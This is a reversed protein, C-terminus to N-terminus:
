KIFILYGVSKGDKKAVYAHTPNLKVLIPSVYIHIMTSGIMLCYHLDYNTQKVEITFPVEEGTEIGNEEAWVSNLFVYAKDRSYSYDPIERTFNFDSTIWGFVDEGRELINRAVIKM